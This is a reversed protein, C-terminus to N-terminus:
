TSVARATAPTVETITEALENLAFAGDRGVRYTDGRVIPSHNATSMVPHLVFVSDEVFEYPAAGVRPEEIELGVMHGFSPGAPSVGRDALFEAIERVVERADVGPRIIKAAHARAANAADFAGVLEESAPGISVINTLQTYYGCFRPSIELMFSDGARLRRDSPQRDAAVARSTHLILNFSGDCGATRLQYDADALVEHEPRGERVFEVARGWVSDALKASRELMVLEERSKGTRLTLMENGVDVFELNALRDRLCEVWGHPLRALDAVGLRRVRHRQLWAATDDIVGPAVVPNAFWSIASAFIAQPGDNVVLVEDDRGIVVASDASLPSYLSLWRYHGQGDSAPTGRAMIADVALSDMLARTAEWRRCREASSFIM